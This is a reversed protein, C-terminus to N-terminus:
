ISSKSPIDWLSLFAANQIPIIDNIAIARINDIDGAPVYAYQPGVSVKNLFMPRCKLQTLTRRNDLSVQEVNSWKFTALTVAGTSNDTRCMTTYAGFVIFNSTTKAQYELYPASVSPYVPDFAHSSKTADVKEFSSKYRTMAVIDEVSPNDSESNLYMLGANAMKIAEDSIGSRYGLAVRLETGSVTDVSVQYIDNFYDGKAVRITNYYESSSSSEREYNPLPQFIGNSFMAAFEGSYIPEITENEPVADIVMYGSQEGFAKEIDAQILNFDSDTILANIQASLINLDVSFKRLGLNTEVGSSLHDFAGWTCILEDRGFEDTLDKFEMLRVCGGPHTETGIPDYIHHFGKIPLILTERGNDTDADKFVNEFEALYANLFPFGALTKITRAQAVLTNFRGRYAAQNAIFDDYDIGLHSFFVRPKMRNKWSFTNALKFVRRMSVSNALIDISALLNSTLVDEPEINNTAGSNARRMATYIITSLQNLVDTEQNGKFITSGNTYCYDVIFSTLARVAISDLNSTQPSFLSNGMIYNFPLKAFADMIGPNKMYYSMDNFMVGSRPSREGRPFRRGKGKKKFNFKGKTDKFNDKGKVDNVESQKTQKNMIKEGKKNILM